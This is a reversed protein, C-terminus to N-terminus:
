VQKPSSNDCCPQFHSGFCFAWHLSNFLFKYPEQQPWDLQIRIMKVVAFALASGITVPFTQFAKISGKFVQSISAMVVNM